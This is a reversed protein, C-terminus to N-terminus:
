TTKRVLKGKQNARTVSGRPSPIVFEEEPFVTPLKYKDLLPSKLYDEFLLGIFYDKNESLYFQLHKDIGRIRKRYSQKM